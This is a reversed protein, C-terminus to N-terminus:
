LTDGRQSPQGRQSARSGYAYQRRHRGSSAETEPGPCSGGIYFSHLRQPFASPRLGSAFGLPSDVLGLKAITKFRYSIAKQGEAHKSLIQRWFLRQEHGCDHCFPEPFDLTITEAVPRAKCADIHAMPPVLSFQFRWLWRNCIALLM